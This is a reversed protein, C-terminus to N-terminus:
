GVSGTPPNSLESDQVVPVATSPRSGGGGGNGDPAPLGSKARRYEHDTSRKVGFQVAGATVLGMIFLGLTNLVMESPAKGVAGLIMTVAVYFVSLVLGVAITTQTTPMCSLVEFIRRMM